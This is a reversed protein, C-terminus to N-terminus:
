WSLDYDPPLWSPRRLQFHDELLKEATQLAGEVWGQNNSYAEGCIYVEDDPVPKRIEPMVQDYRVGAKWEHWGGGYPDDTWDHYLATYPAPLTAQGHLERLQNQALEVMGTTAPQRGLYVPPAWGPVFPTRYGEFADDNETAKWFPVTGIDNYSAMLLSSHNAPDAGDYEGETGFYYVQRIPLDTISRGAHLGLARWWPYEYGLFLKFAAQNLVSERLDRVRPERWGDWEVLELSRRPMALIIQKANFDVPEEDARDHVQRASAASWNNVTVEHTLRFRLRYFGHRKEISALRHNRHISARAATEFREAITEPLKQFGDKLTLFPVEPGYEGVPLQSVANANAVNADYGGADKMFDYAENSLVRSLLDWFGHKYLERGFVKVRFWEDPTLKAHGPVLYKVVHEQLQDPDLGREIWSVAYPIEGPRNLDRLRIHKRRLYYLNNAAGVPKGSPDGPAPNPNGMLFVRSTLDLFEVLNAVLRHDVPNYRMGGLEAHVHPMGPLTRTYLRGGIRDSYEFLAVNWDPREENLRWATYVGSIGAGVVAVDLVRPPM